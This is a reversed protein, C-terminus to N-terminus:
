ESNRKDYAIQGGQLITWGDYHIFNNQWLGAKILYAKAEPYNTPKSLPWGESDVIQKSQHTL